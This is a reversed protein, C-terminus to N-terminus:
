LTLGSNKYFWSKQDELRSDLSEDLFLGASQNMVKVGGLKISEDEEVKADAGFRSVLKKGLPIDERRLLVVTGSRDKCQESLGAATEELFGAYDPGKVFDALRQRVNSFVKGTLEERRLLLERRKANEQQAVSRTAALRIEATEDQERGGLEQLAQEKAQKMATERVEKAQKRLKGADEEAQAMVSQRILEFREEITAMSKEGKRELTLNTSGPNM